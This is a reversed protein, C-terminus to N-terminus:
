FGKKEKAKQMPNIVVPKHGRASDTKQKFVQFKSPEPYDGVTIAKM